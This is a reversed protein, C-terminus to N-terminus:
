IYAYIYAIKCCGNKALYNQVILHRINAKNHFRASPRSIKFSELSVKDRSDVGRYYIYHSWNQFNQFIGFISWIQSQTSFDLAINIGLSLIRGWDSIYYGKALNSVLRSYRDYSLSSLEKASVWPGVPRCRGKHWVLERKKRVWWRYFNHARFDQATPLFDLVTSKFYWRTKLIKTLVTVCIRLVHYLSNWVM